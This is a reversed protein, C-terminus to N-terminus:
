SAALDFLGGKRDPCPKRAGGGVPGLAEVTGDIDAWPDVRLAARVWPEARVAALLSKGRPGVVEPGLDVGGGSRDSTVEEVLLVPGPIFGSLAAMSPSEERSLSAMARVFEPDARSDLMPLFRVADM